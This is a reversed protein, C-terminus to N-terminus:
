ILLFANMNTLGNMRSIYDFAIGWEAMVCLYQLGNWLSFIFNFHNEKCDSFNTIKAFWNGAWKNWILNLKDEAILYTFKDLLLSFEIIFKYREYADINYGFTTFSSRMFHQQYLIKMHRHLLFIISTLWLKNDNAGTKIHIAFTTAFSTIYTVVVSYTFVSIFNWSFHALAFNFNNIISFTHMCRDMWGDM